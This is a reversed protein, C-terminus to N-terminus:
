LNTRCKYETLKDIFIKRMPQNENLNELDDTDMSSPESGEPSEASDSGGFELLNERQLRLLM